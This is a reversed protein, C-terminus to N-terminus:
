ASSHTSEHEKAEIHPSEMPQSLEVEFHVKEVQNTKTKAILVDSLYPMVDEKFIGDRSVIM